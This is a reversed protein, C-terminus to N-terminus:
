DKHNGLHTAIPERKSSVAGERSLVVTNKYLTGSAGSWTLFTIVDGETGALAKPTAFSANATRQEKNRKAKPLKCTDPTRAAISRIEEPRM